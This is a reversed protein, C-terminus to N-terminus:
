AAVKKRAKPKASAELEAVRREAIVARTTVQAIRAELAAIRKLYELTESM